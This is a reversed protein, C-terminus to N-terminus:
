LKYAIVDSFNPNYSPDREFNGLCEIDPLEIEWGVPEEQVCFTQSVVINRGYKNYLRLQLDYNMAHIDISNSFGGIECFHQKSVFFASKAVICRDTPAYGLAIYGSRVPIAKHKSVVVYGSYFERTYRNLVNSAVAGFQSQDVYSLLTSMWEPETIGINENVFLFHKCKSSFAYKNFSEINDIYQIVVFDEYSCLRRRLNQDCGVIVISYKIYKTNCLLEWIFKKIREENGEYLIVVELMPMTKMDYSVCYITGIQSRVTAKIDNRVCYEELAKQGAVVAYSKSAGAVSTSGEIKRWRYLIKPIHFIKDTEDIVRLFLDYDQAGEFGKRFGGIKKVVATRIVSFHCIYNSTLFNDIAFDPKFHPECRKSGELKDEDSYIFDYEKNINLVKVVEELANEVLIDDNDLLGIYEGTAMAIATNSAESIHGNKDRYCIKIKDSSNEYKKLTAITEEKTSHDDAICIEFNQYTQNLVSEICESLFDKGINYVPIIISILPKYPLEIENEDKIENECIWENYENSNFPDYVKEKPNIEESFMQSTNERKLMSRIQTALRDKVRVGIDIRIKKLTVIGDKTKALLKLPKRALITENLSFGYARADKKEFTKDWIVHKGSVLLLQEVDTTVLGELIIHPHRIGFIKCTILYYKM